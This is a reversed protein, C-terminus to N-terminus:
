APAEGTAGAAPADIVGLAQTELILEPQPRTFTWASGGGATPVRYRYAVPQAAPGAALRGAVLAMIEAVPAVDTNPLPRPDTFTLYWRGLHNGGSEDPEYRRYKWAEIRQPQAPQAAAAAVGREGRSQELADAVEDKGARRLVNLAMTLAGCDVTVRNHEAGAAEGADARQEARGPYRSCRRMHGGYGGCEACWDAPTTNPTDDSM